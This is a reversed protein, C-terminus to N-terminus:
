EEAKKPQYPGFKQEYGRGLSRSHPRVTQVKLEKGPGRGISRQGMNGVSKPAEAVVPPLKKATAKKAKSAKSKAM